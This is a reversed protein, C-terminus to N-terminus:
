NARGWQLETVKHKKGEIEINGRTLERPGMSALDNAHPNNETKQNGRTLERPGMSAHRVCVRGSRPYRNGRTLERPGMSARRALLFVALAVSKRANIRAAGNFRLIWCVRDNAVWSKRANIRAAGNFRSPLLWQYSTMPLNGRTLERPGM